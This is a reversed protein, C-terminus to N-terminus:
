PNFWFKVTETVKSAVAKGGQKAPAFQYKKVAEVAAERLARPGAIVKVEGVHGDAEVVAEVKVDGTIFSRMADPPYVPTAAKLLKAPQVGAEDAAIEAANGGAASGANAAGKKGLKEKAAPQRAGESEASGVKSEEANGAASGEGGNEAMPAANVHKEGASEAGGKAKASGAVGLTSAAHGATGPKAARAPGVAVTTNKGFPLYTWTKGYWVSWALAVVLVGM